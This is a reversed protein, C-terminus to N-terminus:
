SIYLTSKKIEIMKEGDVIFYRSHGTHYYSLNLIISLYTIIINVEGWKILTAFENPTFLTIYAPSISELDGLHTVGMVQNIEDNM